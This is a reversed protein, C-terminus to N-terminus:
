LPKLETLAFPVDIKTVCGPLIMLKVKGPPVLEVVSSKGAEACRGLLVVIDESVMSRLWIAEFLVAVVVIVPLGKSDISTGSASNVKVWPWPLM